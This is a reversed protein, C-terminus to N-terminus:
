RGSVRYHHGAAIDFGLNRYLTVAPLNDRLVQLYLEEAGRETAWRILEAMMASALGRRRFKPTVTLNSVYAFRGQAVITGLAATEGAIRLRAFTHDSRIAGFIAAYAAEREPPVGKISLFERLWEGNEETRDAGPLSVEFGNEKAPRVSLRESASGTSGTMLYCPETLLYGENALREDLGAPSTDSVYFCPPIGSRVAFSEAHELWDGTESEPFPAATWVSNGRRSVGGSARLMWGGLPERVIPPWAEIALRELLRVHELREPNEKTSNNM